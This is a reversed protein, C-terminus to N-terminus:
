RQHHVDIFVEPDGGIEERRRISGAVNAGDHGHVPM